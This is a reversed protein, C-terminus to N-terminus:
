PEIEGTEHGLGRRVGRKVLQRVLDPPVAVNVDSSPVQVEFIHLQTPLRRHRLADGLLESSLHAEVGARGSRQM